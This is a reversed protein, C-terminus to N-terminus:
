GLIVLGLIIGVLGGCFVGVGLFLEIFGVGVGGVVVVLVM